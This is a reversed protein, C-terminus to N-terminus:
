SRGSISLKPYIPYKDEEALCLAGGFQLADGSNRCKRTGDQMRM